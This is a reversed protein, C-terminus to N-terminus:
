WELISVLLAHVNQMFHARECFRTFAIRNVERCQRKQKVGM